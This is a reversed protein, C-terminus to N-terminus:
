KQKEKMETRGDAYGIVIANAMNIFLGTEVVGPILNLSINLAAANDIKEFYCDLINHGTDTIFPLDNVKRLQVDKCGLSIIKKQVQKWGNPIVEVPLPFHGLQKVYKTEDAIIILKQSAAAVMKEQLLAGGGGKILQFKDDVEDAGDITMPLMDVDNLEVVTIGAEAALKKTRSSTAVISLSFGQKIRLGLEQILWFITSGSGMGITTNSPILEAAYKGLNKKIEEQTLM